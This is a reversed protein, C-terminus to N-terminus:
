PEPNEQGKPMVLTTPRWGFAGAPKVGSSIGPVWKWLSLRGWSVHNDTPAVSFIGLSVVPFRDRSRGVLLAAVPAVFYTVFFVLGNLRGLNRRFIEHSLFPILPERCLNLFWIIVSLSAMLIVLITLILSALKIWGFRLRFFDNWWHWAKLNINTVFLFM